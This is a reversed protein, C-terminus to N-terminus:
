HDEQRKYKKAAALAQQLSSPPTKVLDFSQEDQHSGRKSIGISKKDKTKRAAALAQQQSSPPTKVLDFFEPLPYNTHVTIKHYANQMAQTIVNQETCPNTSGQNTATAAVLASFNIIANDDPMINGEKEKKENNRIGNDENKISTLISSHQYPVIGTETVGDEAACDHVVVVAVEEEGDNDDEAANVFVSSSHENPVIATITFEGGHFFVDIEKKKKKM